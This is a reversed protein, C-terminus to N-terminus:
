VDLQFVAHEEHEAGGIAVLGTKGLWITEVDGAVGLLANGEAGTRMIAGAREGGAGHHGVDRQRAGERPQLVQPQILALRHPDAAPRKAPQEVQRHLPVRSSRQLSSRSARVNGTASRTSSRAARFPTFRWRRWTTITSSIGACNAM